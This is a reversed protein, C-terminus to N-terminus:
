LGQGRARDRLHLPLFSLTGREAELLHILCEEEQHGPVLKGVIPGKWFQFALSVSESMSPPHMHLCLEFVCVCVCVCM